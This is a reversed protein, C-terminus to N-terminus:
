CGFGVMTANGAGCTGFCQRREPSSRLSVTTPPAHPLLEVSGLLASCFIFPRAFSHPVVSAIEFTPRCYYHCLRSSGVCVGGSRAWTRVGWGVECSTMFKEKLRSATLRLAVDTRLEAAADDLEPSTWRNM